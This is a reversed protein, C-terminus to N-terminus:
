CLTNWTQLQFHAGSEWGSCKICFTLSSDIQFNENELAQAHCGLYEHMCALERSVRRRVYRPLLVWSRPCGSSWAGELGGLSSLEAHTATIRCWVCAMRGRYKFINFHWAQFDLKKKTSGHLAPMMVAHCRSAPIENTSLCLLPCMFGRRTPLMQRSVLVQKILVCTCTFSFRMYM